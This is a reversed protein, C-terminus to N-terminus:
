GKGLQEQISLLIERKQKIIWIIVKKMRSISRIRYKIVLNESDLDESCLNMYQSM